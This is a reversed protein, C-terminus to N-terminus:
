QTEAPCTHTTPCGDSPCEFTTPCGDSPDEVAVAGGAVSELDEESLPEVELNEVEALKDQGKKENDKESM